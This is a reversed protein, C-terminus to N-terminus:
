IHFIETLATELQEGKTQKDQTLCKQLYNKAFLVGVRELGAKAAKFQTLIKFCDEESEILRILGDIQGRVFALRKTLDVEKKVKKPM